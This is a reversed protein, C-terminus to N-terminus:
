LPLDRFPFIHCIRLRSIVVIIIMWMSLFVNGVCGIELGIVAARVGILWTDIWCRSSVIDWGWILLIFRWGSCWWIMCVCPCSIWVWHRLKEHWVAVPRCARLSLRWSHISQRWMGVLILMRWRRLQRRNCLVVLRMTVLLKRMDGLMARNRRVFLKRWAGIRMCRMWVMKM